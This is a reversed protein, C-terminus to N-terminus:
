DESNARVKALRVIHGMVQNRMRKSPIDAYKEAVKKNNEFSETFEDAGKAFIKDGSAKVFRTKIRGMVYIFWFSKKFSVM